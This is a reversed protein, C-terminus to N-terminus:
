PFIAAICCDAAERRQRNMKWLVSSVKKREVEGDSGYAALALERVAKPGSRTADYIKRRVEGRRAVDPRKAPMVRPLSVGRMNLLREVEALGDLKGRIIQKRLALLAGNISKDQM